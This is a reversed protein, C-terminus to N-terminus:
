NNGEEGAMERESEEESTKKKRTYNWSKTSCSKITDM